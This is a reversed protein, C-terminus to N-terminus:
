SPDFTPINVGGAGARTPAPDGELEFPYDQTAARAWARGDLPFADIHDAAARAVQPSAVSTGALRVWSGSRSGASYVGGLVLSDDGKATVDPGVRHPDPSNVSPNLPGAASYESITAEKKTYAAVVIPSKGSAFGSITGARRVPCDSDVPDVALPEGFPGFRVYDPNSFYAQRGGPGLGPITEDRRVWIHIPEPPTGDNRCVQLKWCGAVALDRTEELNATPNITLTVLGRQTAGGVYEYALRAVRKGKTNVLSVQQGIKTNISGHQEGFPDSVKITAFDIQADVPCVPMWIQVQTATRDDPLVTLDLSVDGNSVEPDAIAHLRRLNANGAPLTLWAKQEEGECHQANEGFYHDFMAAFVGTGDHPGGNNGYSFNFVVPALAGSKTRFRRAQKVLIHFALYVTPLLEVGTTDKVARSPLAACIIPRNQCNEKIPHGAALAMVHTGHSKRLAVTSFVQEALDVQGSKTYFLDEDLLGNFTCEVLLANIDAQDLSRGVSSHSKAVDPEAEFIRAHHIRSSTDSTRFLDHAIAIGDDVIAQVVTDDDVELEELMLSEADHNLFREPTIAGLLVSSVYFPNGTKNLRKIFRKRAYITVSQSALVRARDAADYAIPILMDQAFKSAAEEFQDISAGEIVILVSWWIETLEIPFNSEGLSLRFYTTQDIIESADPDYDSTWISM